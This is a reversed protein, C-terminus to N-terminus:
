VLRFKNIEDKTTGIHNNSGGSYDKYDKATRILLQNYGKWDAVLCLKM